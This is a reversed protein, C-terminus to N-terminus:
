YLINLISDIVYDQEEYTLDYYLPISLCRNYYNKCTDLEKLSYGIKKYYPQITVPIYHVQSIINHNRLKQMLENRSLKAKKFDIDLIYM